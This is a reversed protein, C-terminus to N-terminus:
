KRLIVMRRQFLGMCHNLPTFLTVYAFGSENRFDGEFSADVTTDSVQNGTNTNRRTETERLSLCEFALNFGVQKRFGKAAMGSRTSGVRRYIIEGM